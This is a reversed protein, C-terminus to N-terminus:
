TGVTIGYNGSVLTGNSSRYQNIRRGVVTTDGASVGTIRLQLEGDNTAGLEATAISSQLTEVSFWLPVDNTSIILGGTYKITCPTAITQGVAVSIPAGSVSWSVAEPFLLDVLNVSNIMPVKVLWSVDNLVDDYSKFFCKYVAGKIVCIEPDKIMVVKDAIDSDYIFAATQLVLKYPTYMGEWSKPVSVTCLNGVSSELNVTFNYTIDTDPVSIIGKTFPDISLYTQNPWSVIVTYTGSSLSVAATGETSTQLQSVLTDSSDLIDIEVNAAFDGDSTKVEFNVM